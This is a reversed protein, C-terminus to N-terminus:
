EAELKRSFYSVHNFNTNSETLWYQFLTTIDQIEKNRWTHPTTEVCTEQWVNEVNIYAPLVSFIVTNQKWRFTENSDPLPSSSCRYPKYHFEDDYSDM